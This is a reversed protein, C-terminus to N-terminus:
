HHRGKSCFTTMANRHLINSSYNVIIYFANRLSPFLNSANERSVKLGAHGDRGGRGTEQYYGALATIDIAGLNVLSM